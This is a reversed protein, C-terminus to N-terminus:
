FLARIFYFTMLGSATLKLLTALMVGMFVGWGAKIAELDRKGALLEGALAGLFAGAILGFPPFFLLGIVMGAVAGWLGAKSAGYKKAGLAPLLYDAALAAITIIGM